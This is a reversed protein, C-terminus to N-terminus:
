EGITSRRKEVWDRLERSTLQTLNWLKALWDADQPWQQRELLPIYIGRSFLHLAKAGAEGSMGMLSHLVDTSQQLDREKAAATLREVLLDIRPLYDKLLEEVMGIRQFGERRRADLLTSASLAADAVAVVEPSATRETMLTRLHQCLQPAEVPKILFGGVGVARGEAVIDDSAYATTALIPLTKLHSDLARIARALEIGSMGPMQIDLIVAHWENHHNLESLAAPGSDVEIVLAGAHRLYEAVAARNWSSDDVLLVRHGSLWATVSWHKHKSTRVAQTIASLLVVDDVPKSVLGDFGANEAKLRTLFGPESTCAILCSHQNVPVEGRRVREALEYGNMGPMNLDMVIGDYRQAKLADLAQLGDAADDVTLDLSQLLLGTSTRLLGDDDVVLFRWGAWQERAQDMLATRRMGIATPSLPPFMLTFETHSGVVSECRIDGGFARMARRCYALGLGTGGIKGVSRFPEFLSKLVDSTMGPGDDRVGIQCDTVTIQLRADPCIPLYYLANKMLNFLVFLLTTESGLFFFDNHLQLNVKARQQDNDYGYEEVAKVCVQAASLLAFQQPDLPKDNVEDLTMAIVQLGRQVALEGMAVHRHLREVDLRSVIQVKEQLRSVPLVQGIRELSHRVQAMPNRMEHAISGALSAYAQRVREATAQELAFKFLNGGVVSVLLVPLRFVYDLPVQPNPDTLAYLGAAAGSGTVLMIIFNRWDALLMLLFVAMFTNGIAATGGGNKLSTFVLAFPLAITMTVYCAHLYCARLREPWHNRIALLLLLSMVLARLAFDDFGSSPRVFRVLYMLPFGVLGFVIMYRLLLPSPQHYTRFHGFLREFWSAM